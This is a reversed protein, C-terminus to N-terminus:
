TPRPLAFVLRTGRADDHRTGARVAGLKEVARQSRFNQPAVVFVVTEVFRFAHELMLRKLEGNYKGGWYARALFTWGIEVEGREPDYGHYRSTGIVEGSRADVVALAGGTALHEAFFDRFVDERYRADPHQEWILPDRAAEYLADFDEARLPRM